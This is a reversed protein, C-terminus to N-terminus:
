ALVSSELSLSAFLQVALNLLKERWFLDSEQLFVHAEFEYGDVEQESTSLCLDLRSTVRYKNDSDSLEEIYFALEYVYSTGFVVNFIQIHTNKNLLLYTDYTFTVKNTKNAINNLDVIFSPITFVPNFTKM